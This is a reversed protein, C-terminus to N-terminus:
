NRPYRDDHDAGKECVHVLMKASASRSPRAMGYFKAAVAFAARGSAACPLGKSTHNWISHPLAERITVPDRVGMYSIM